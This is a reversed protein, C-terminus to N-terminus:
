RELEKLYERKEALERELAEIDAKTSAILRLRGQEALDYGHREICLANKIEYIKKNLETTDTEEDMKKAFAAREADEKEKMGEAYRFFYGRTGQGGYEDPVKCLAYKGEMEIWQRFMISYKERLAKHEANLAKLEAKLAEIKANEKKM